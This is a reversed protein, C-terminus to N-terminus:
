IQTVWHTQLAQAKQWQVTKKKKKKEIMRKPATQKTWKVCIQGVDLFFKAAASCVFLESVVCFHYRCASKAVAWLSLSVCSLLSLLSRTIGRTGTTRQRLELTCPRLCREQRRFPWVNTYLDTTGTKTTWFEPVSHSLRPPRGASTETSKCCFQLLLLKTSQTRVTCRQNASNTM